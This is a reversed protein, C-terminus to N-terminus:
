AKKVGKPVDPAEWTASTAFFGGALAPSTLSMPEMEPDPLGGAPPLLLRLSQASLVTLDRCRAQLCYAAGAGCVKTQLGKAMCSLTM